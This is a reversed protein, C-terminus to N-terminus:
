ISYVIFGTHICTCTNIHKYLIFSHVTYILEKDHACNNKLFCKYLKTIALSSFHGYSVTCKCSEKKALGKITMCTQKRKNWYIGKTMWDEILVPEVETHMNWLLTSCCMQINWMMRKGMHFLDYLSEDLIFM